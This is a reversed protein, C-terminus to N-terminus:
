PQEEVERKVRNGVDEASVYCDEVPEGYSDEDTCKGDVYYYCGSCPHKDM